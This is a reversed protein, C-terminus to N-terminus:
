FQLHSGAIGAEVANVVLHISEIFIKLFGIIKVCRFFHLSGDVIGVLHHCLEPLGNLSHVADVGHNLFYVIENGSGVIRGLIHELFSPFVEVLQLSAIILFCVISGEHESGDVSGLFGDSLIHHALFTCGALLIRGVESEEDLM